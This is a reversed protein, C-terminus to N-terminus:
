SRGFDKFSYNGTELYEDYADSAKAATGPKVRIIQDEYESRSNQGRVLSQAMDTVPEFQNEIFTMEARRIDRETQALEAAIAEPSGSNRLRELDNNLALLRSHVRLQRQVREDFPAFPLSGIAPPADPQGKQVAVRAQEPSYAYQHGGREGQLVWYPRAYVGYRQWMEWQVGSVFVCANDGLVWPPPGDMFALFEPTEMPVGPPQDGKILHKPLCDYLVWRQKARYWYFRLHSYLETIDNVARLAAEWGDPPLVAVDAVSNPLNEGVISTTM